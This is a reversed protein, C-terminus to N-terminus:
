HRDGAAPVRLRQANFNGALPEISAATQDVALIDNLLKGVTPDPTSVHGNQAALQYLNVSQVAGGTTQYRYIGAQAEPTLFDSTDTRTRPTRNEEYNM